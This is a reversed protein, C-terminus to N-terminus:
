SAWGACNMFLAAYHPAESPSATLGGLRYPQGPVQARVALPWVSLVSFLSLNVDGGTSVGMGPNCGVLGHYSIDRRADGCIQRGLDGEAPGNGWPLRPSWWIAGPDSQQVLLASARLRSVRSAPSQDPQALYAYVAMQNKVRAIHALLSFVIRTLRTPSVDRSTQATAM